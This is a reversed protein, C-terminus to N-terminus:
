EYRLSDIPDLRAAKYAPYGGFVVALLTVGAVAIAAWLWPFTPQIDFWAATLNGGLGGLVIGILGGVQCLIIAELLFQGLIDYWKAGVAKRIGIEKTRETVSVLMINMIGVGAALLSILGVAAGGLTLTSTFETFTSRLGDSTDINFTAPQGAEVKRIVRLSRMVAEQAAPLAQPSPARVRVSNMNRGGNGYTSLLYSLPAYVRSNPDRFLGGKEALVGIVELRVRGIQIEKGIPTAAPFLADAVSSGLLAVPRANQVDQEAFPRGARMDYGFNSLFAQDTGYLDINPNTEERASQAKVNYDFGEEVSVTFRGGLQEKLRQVQRHTLPPHYREQDSGFNYREVSLTSAGLGQISSKFYLDIVDVATVAAIVAFVGIVMGLLTLASRLKNARLASLAERFTELLQM